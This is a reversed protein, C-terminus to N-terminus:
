ANQKRIRARKQTHTKKAQTHSKSVRTYPKNAHTHTHTTQKRTHTTNVHTHRTNRKQKRMRTNQKEHMYVCREDVDKIKALVVSVFLGLTGTPWGALRIGNQSRAVSPEM